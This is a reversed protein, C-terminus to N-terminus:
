ESLPVNDIKTTKETAKPAENTEGQADYDYHLEDYNLLVFAATTENLAALQIAIQKLWFSTPHSTQLQEIEDVSPAQM